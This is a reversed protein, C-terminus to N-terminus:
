SGYPGFVDNAIGLRPDDPTVPKEDARVENTGDGRPPPLAIKVVSWAGSPEQRPQWQHTDRDPHEARLRACEREAEARTV